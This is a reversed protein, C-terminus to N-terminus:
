QCLCGSRRRKCDTKRESASHHGWGIRRRAMTAAAKVAAAVVAVKSTAAGMTLAAAISTVGPTISTVGPTISTVAISAGTGQGRKAQNRAVVASAPSPRIAINAAVSRYFLEAGRSIFKALRIGLGDGRGPGAAAPSEHLTSRRAMRKRTVLDAM